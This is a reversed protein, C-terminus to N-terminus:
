FDLTQVIYRPREQEAEPKSEKKKRRGRKPKAVTAVPPKQETPSTEVLVPQEDPLATEAAVVPEEADSAPTAVASQTDSVAVVDDNAVKAAEREAAEAQRELFLRDTEDSLQREGTRYYFVIGARESCRMHAFPPLAAYAAEVADWVEVILSDVKVRLELLVARQRETSRVSTEKKVVTEAYADFFVRVKQISPYNVPLGGDATRAREGAIVARGVHLLDDDSVLAPVRSTQEDLGYLPLKARRIEGRAVAHILVDLFDSVYTQAKGRTESYKRRAEAEREMTFRHQCVANEFAPLITKARQRLVFPVPETELGLQEAAARLARLRAQDTKPFRRYPM